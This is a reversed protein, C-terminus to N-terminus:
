KTKIHQVIDGKKHFNSLNLSEKDQQAQLRNHVKEMYLLCNTFQMDSLAYQLFRMAKNDEIGFTNIAFMIIEHYYGDSRIQGKSLKQSLEFGLVSFQTATIQAFEIEEAKDKPPTITSM